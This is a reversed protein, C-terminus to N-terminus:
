EDLRRLTILYACSGGEHLTADFITDEVSEIVFDRAFNAEIDGRSIRRPGGERSEKESFVLVYAYGGARTVTAIGRVYAVREEDTFVHFVGSDLITDFREKWQDLTLADAVRFDVKLTREIAKERAREVAIPAFDAAVVEFGQAALYLANEGTGCGVDLVKGRIAGSEELRVIASQPKGIEWPPTEKRYRENFRNDQTMSLKKGCDQRIALAM